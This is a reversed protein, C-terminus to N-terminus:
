WTVTLTITDNYSGPTVDQGAFLQGYSTYTDTQKGNRGLGHGLSMAGSVASSGGSVADGWVQSHANDVYLNYTLLSAGNLLTRTAYSSSSGTSLALSYNVTVNDPSTLSCSASISGSSNLPSANLPDYVGFAIASASVTCTVAAYAFNACCGLGLLLVRLFMRPNSRLIM